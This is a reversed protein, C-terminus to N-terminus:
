PLLLSLCVGCGHRFPSRNFNRLWFPPGFTVGESQQSNPFRAVPKQISPSSLALPMWNAAVSFRGKPYRVHDRSSIEKGKLPNVGKVECPTFPATSTLLGKLVKQHSSPTLQRALSPREKHNSFPDKPLWRIVMDVLPGQFQIWESIPSSIRFLVATEHPARVM